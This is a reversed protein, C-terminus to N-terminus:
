DGSRGLDAHAGRLVAQASEVTADDLALKEANFPRHLRLVDIGQHDQLHRGIAGTLTWGMDNRIDALVIRYPTKPPEFAFGHGISALLFVFVGAIWRRCECCALRACIRALSNFQKACKTL